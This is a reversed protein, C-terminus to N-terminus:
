EATTSPLKPEGGIAMACEITRFIPLKTAVSIVTTPRVFFFYHNTGLSASDIAHRHVELDNSILLKDLFLEKMLM